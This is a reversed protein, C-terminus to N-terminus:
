AVLRTWVGDKDRCYTGATIGGLDSMYLLLDFIYEMNDWVYSYLGWMYDSLEDSFNAGEPNEKTGKIYEDYRGIIRAVDELVYTGGFLNWQDVGWGHRETSAALQSLKRDISELDGLLESYKNYLEPTETIEKIASHIEFRDFRDGFDFGEFKICKILKIHDETLTLKKLM